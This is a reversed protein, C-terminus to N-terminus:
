VIAMGLFFTACRDQIVTSSWFIMAQPTRTSRPVSMSRAVRSVDMAPFYRERAPIASKPVSYLHIDEGSRMMSPAIIMTFFADHDPALNTPINNNKTDTVESTPIYLCSTTPNKSRCSCATLNKPLEAVISPRRVSRATLRQIVRLIDYLTM